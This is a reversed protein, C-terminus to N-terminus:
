DLNAVENISPSRDIQRDRHIKLLKVLDDISYLSELLQRTKSMDQQNIKWKQPFDNQTYIELSNNFCVIATRLDMGGHIIKRVKIQSNQGLHDTGRDFYALGLNHQLMAWYEPFKQRTYIQLAHNFCDIPEYQYGQSLGEKPLSIRQKEIEGQEV